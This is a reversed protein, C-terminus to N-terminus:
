RDFLKTLEIIKEFDKNLDLKDNLKNNILFALLCKQGQLNKWHKRLGDKRSYVHGCGWRAGSEECRGMCKFTSNLHLSREHRNLDSRRVFGKSCFNCIHPKVTLHLRIHSDHNSKRPFGKGCEECVFPMKCKTKNVVTCNEKNISNKDINKNSRRNNKSRMRRKRRKIPVEVDVNIEVKKTQRRLRFKRVNLNNNTSFEGESQGALNVEELEKKSEPKTKNELTHEIKIENKKDKEEEKIEDQQQERQNEINKAFLEVEPTKELTCIYSHINNNNLLGGISPIKIGLGFLQDREDDNETENREGEDSLADDIIEDHEIKNDINSNYFNGNIEYDIDVNIDDDYDILEYKKKILNTQDRRYYSDEDFHCIPVGIDSDISTLPSPTDSYDNSCFKYDNDRSIYQQTDIQDDDNNCVHHHHQHDYHYNNNDYYYHHMQPSSLSSRSSYTSSTLEDVSCYGTSDLQHEEIHSLSVHRPNLSGSDDFRNPTFFILKDRDDKGAHDSNSHCLRPTSAGKFISKFEVKADTDVDDFEHDHGHLDATGGIGNYENFQWKHLLTSSELDVSELVNDGICKSDMTVTSILHITRPCSTHDEEANGWLSVHSEKYYTWGWEVGKGGFHVLQGTKCFPNGSDLINSWKIEGAM